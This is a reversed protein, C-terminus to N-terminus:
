TAYVRLRLSDSWLRAHAQIQEIGVRCWLQSHRRQTCSLERAEDLKQRAYARTLEHLRYLPEALTTDVEILSKRALGLLCELVVPHSLREDAIAGAAFNPHFSGGFVSLRRLVTQEDSTLRSYSWDFSARLTRHRAEATRRGEIALFMADHLDFSLARLGLWRAQGAAIEIALPNGALRRCVNAILVLEHDEVPADAYTGARDIFLQIAPCDIMRANAGAAPALPGLEQAFEGRARLAERSTALVNVGPCHRLVSESLRTVADVVHECNDLVLLLKQKSLHAVIERLPDPSAPSLGLAAALRNCVDQPRNASALEVFCVGQAHTAALAEAARIALTSKGIGGPGTLTVLRERPVREILARLTHERGFMPTLPVPLNNKRSSQRVPLKLVTSGSAHALGHSARCLRSIMAVMRYGRGTVNHVYDSDPEADRLARRLLAVNVRLTGEEVVLNPWVRRLLERNSVIAGAKETLVLLIEMARSGLAVHSGDKVLRRTTRNLQFSGFTVIDEALLSLANELHTNM